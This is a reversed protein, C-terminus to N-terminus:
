PKNQATTRGSQAAQSTTPSRVIQGHVKFFAVPETEGAITVSFAESVVGAESPAVITLPLVHVIRPEKELRVEFLGASKESEVKEILFPKKGRVVVNKTKRDGPALTGFDVLEPTVTYENEIRAEILVPVQPNGADDTILTLQDHLEGAPASGKLTVSLSYNVRGGERRTEAVRATIHPNKSIVEKISWNQRGAYAVDIKRETDSGRAIAGFEALGPTLVVDTRIYAKIPITVEAFQPRDITITVSSTKEHTFKKTDMAIELYATEHSALTDKSVRAETCGCTKSIGSIHVPDRYLNTIALRYRAEAGRAVVGFDHDQKAFMKRAWDNNQARASSAAFVMALGCLLCRMTKLRM